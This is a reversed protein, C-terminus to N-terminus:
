EPSGAPAAEPYAVTLSVEGRTARVSAGFAALIGRRGEIDLGDLRKLVERCWEVIRLKIEAAADRDRQRDELGRLAGRKEECLAKLQGVLRELSNVDILANAFLHELRSLRWELEHIERRLFATEEGLDGGVTPLHGLLGAIFVVPGCIAEALMRWAVDELEDARIYPADCTGPRLSAPVADCCRYYRYLRKQLSTGVIPSGCIPCEPFGALMYHRGPGTVRM